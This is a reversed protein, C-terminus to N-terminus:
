QINATQDTLTATNFDVVYFALVTVPTEVGAVVKDEKPKVLRLFYITDSAKIGENTIGAQQPDNTFHLFSSLGQQNKLDFMKDTMTVEVEAGLPINVTKIFAVIDILSVYTHILTTKLLHKIAKFAAGQGHDRDYLRVDLEDESLDVKIPRGYLYEVEMGENDLISQASLNMLQPPSGASDLHGLGQPKAANYLAALIAGKNVGAIDIKM